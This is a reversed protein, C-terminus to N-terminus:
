GGTPRTGGAPRRPLRDAVYVAKGQEGVVLGAAHLLLMAREVTSTSTGYTEALVVKTPLAGGPPWRGAYIGATIDDVVRQYAPPKAPM